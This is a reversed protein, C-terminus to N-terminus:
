GKLLEMLDAMDAFTTAGAEQLLEKNTDDVIAYVDFGGAVAATVGALSDEIVACEKAAYGMQEAAYWFLDPKPKWRQIQYASFLNGDFYDLLGTLKLNLRIKELPGNSAVCIPITLQQLVQEVNPLAEINAEYASFTRKRFELEVEKNLPLKGGSSENIYDFCYQLSHGSFLAMAQEMDLMVGVGEAMDILVQMTVKETAVLVGDCDFLICKYKM